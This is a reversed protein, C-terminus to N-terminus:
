ATAEVLQLPFKNPPVEKTTEVPASEANTIQVLVGSIVRKWNYTKRDYNLEQTWGTRGFVDGILALARQRDDPSHGTHIFCMAVDTITAFSALGEPLKDGFEAAFIRRAEDSEALKAAQKQLHNM